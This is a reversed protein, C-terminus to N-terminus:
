AYYGHFPKEFDVKPNDCGCKFSVIERDGSLTGTFYMVGWEGCECRVSLRKQSM